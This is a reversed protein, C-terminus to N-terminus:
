SRIRGRDTRGPRDASEQGIVRAFYRGTLSGGRGRILRPLSQVHSIGTRLSSGPRRGDEQLVSGIDGMCVVSRIPSTADHSRNPPVAARCDNGCPAGATMSQRLTASPDSLMPAAFAMSGKAKRTFACACSAPPRKFNTM